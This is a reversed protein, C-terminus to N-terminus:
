QDIAASLLGAEADPRGVWVGKIEREWNGIRGDGIGLEWNGM